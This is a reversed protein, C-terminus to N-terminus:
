KEGAKVLILSHHNSWDRNYILITRAKRGLDRDLVVNPINGTKLISDALWLAFSSAGPYEGCLHKYVGSSSSKFNQSVVEDFSNDFKADGSKGMLVLDIQDTACNHKTLFENIINGVLRDESEYFTAVGQIINKESVQRGSVVFWVAGEGALTGKSKSKFINLSDTSGKKFVGFRKTIQHSMDTIEDVAGVLINQQDFESAHLMADLLASEFSFAEHAYTQNYGHCQLLLAIYSSITNHTSHIFPTPNLAEERQRIVQNLFTGTDEMCGLATGAIIADPKSVGANKLASLSAATGMKMIRSMRRLQKVDFLSSYDPEICNLRSGVYSTTTKLFDEGVTKQPSISAAGYIYLPM